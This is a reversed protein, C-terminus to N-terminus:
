VLETADLRIEVLGLNSSLVWTLGLCERFEDPESM